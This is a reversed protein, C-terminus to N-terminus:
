AGWRRRDWFCRVVVRDAEWVVRQAHGRWAVLNSLREIDRPRLVFGAARVLEGGSYWRLLVRHKVTEFGRALSVVQVGVMDWNCPEAPRLSAVCSWNYVEVVDGPPSDLLVIQVAQENESLVRCRFEAGKSWTFRILFVADSM